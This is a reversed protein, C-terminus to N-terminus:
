NIRPALIILNLITHGLPLTRGCPSVNSTALSPTAAAPPFLFGDFPLLVKESCVPFCIIDERVHGKRNGLRTHSISEKWVTLPLLFQSLLTVDLSLLM